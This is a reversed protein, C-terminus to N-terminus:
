QIYWRGFGTSHEGIGAYICRGSAELGAGGRVMEFNLDGADRATVRHVAVLLILGLIPLGAVVEVQLGHPCGAPVPLRM